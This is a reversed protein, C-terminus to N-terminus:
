GGQLVAHRIQRRREAYDRLEDDDRAQDVWRDVLREYYPLREDPTLQSWCGQCLPFCAHNANYSTDHSEVGVLGYFRFRELQQYRRPGILKQKQSKWPRKCRGCTSIDPSLARELNAPLHV